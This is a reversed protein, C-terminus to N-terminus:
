KVKKKPAPEFPEPEGPGPAPATPAEALIEAGTEPDITYSGGHRVTTAVVGESKDTM